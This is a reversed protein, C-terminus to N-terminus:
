DSSDAPLAAQWWVQHGLNLGGTRCPPLLSGIGAATGEGEFKPQPM